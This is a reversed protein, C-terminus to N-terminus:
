DCYGCEWEIKHEKMVEDIINWQYRGIDDNDVIFHNEYTCDNWDTYPNDKTAETIRYRELGNDKLDASTFSYDDKYYSCEKNAIELIIGLLEEKTVDNRSIVFSSSSSNTVFDIRKKM